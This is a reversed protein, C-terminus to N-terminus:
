EDDLLEVIQPLVRQSIEHLRKRIKTEMELARKRYPLAQQPDGIGERIHANWLEVNCMYVTLDQNLGHVTGGDSMNQAKAVLSYDM